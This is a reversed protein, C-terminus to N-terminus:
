LVKFTKSRESEHKEAKLKKNEAKLNQCEKKLKEIMADKSSIEKQFFGELKEQYNEFERLFSASFVDSKVRLFSEFSVETM